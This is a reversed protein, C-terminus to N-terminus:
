ISDDSNLTLCACDPNLLNGHDNRKESLSVFTFDSYVSGRGHGLEYASTDERHFGYQAFLILSLLSLSLCLSLPHKCEDKYTCKLM